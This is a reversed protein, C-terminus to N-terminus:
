KIQILVIEPNTGIRLPSTSTGVGSSTINTTEGVKTLGYTLKKYMSKVLITIPFFQGAHTHGSVILSPNDERLAPVNKPDHLIIISPNEKIYGTKKLRDRTADGKEMSYDLGIIQTGNVEIRSDVLPTILSKLISMWKGPELNYQEHNGPTYFIGHTSKLNKLPSLGKEYDFVPGDIIDGAIIVMGPNLSNIKKVVKQMFHAGRVTGIHLDSVLVINKGQWNKSLAKSEVTRKTIRIFTANVIGYIIAATSLSIVIWSLTTMNIEYGLRIKLNYIVSLIVAGFFFYMLFPLWLVGILNTVSILKSHIRRGLVMTIIILIPALISLWLITNYGLGAQIVGFALGARLITLSAIAFLCLTVIIFPIISFFIKHAMTRTYGTLSTFEFATLENM